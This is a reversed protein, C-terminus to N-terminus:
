RSIRQRELADMMTGAVDVGFHADIERICTPSTVNVETLFGGIVDIGVFFLGRARLEPGIEGCIWRDRDTLEAPEVRGGVAINARFEGPAALRTIAQPVAEGDIMLIRKDGTVGVADLYAQAMVSRTGHRTMEELIVNTNVDRAHLTFISRGGMADLPKIVVRGQAAIFARLAHPSSSVLSAPCCQPFWATCLKENADRLAQPRNVVRVGEAEARELIHTATLYELDVPPDKRMLILDLEALPGEVPDGLTFWNADDGAVTLARRTAEARGDRLRLDGPEMYELQWGRVTAALLMALTSDKHPKIGAIPDMVVGLRRTM